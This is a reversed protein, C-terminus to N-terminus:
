PRQLFTQDPVVKPRKSRVCVAFLGDGGVFSLGAETVALTGFIIGFPIAGIVMPITDRMGAAFMQWRTVTITQVRM